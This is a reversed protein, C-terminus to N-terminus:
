NITKHQLMFVQFERRSLNAYLSYGMLCLTNEAFYYLLERPRKPAPLPDYQVKFIEHPVENDM